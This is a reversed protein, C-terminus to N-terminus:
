MPLQASGPTTLYHGPGAEGLPGCDPGATQSSWRCEGCKGARNAWQLMEVYEGYTYAEIETLLVVSLLPSFLSKVVTRLGAPHCFPAFDVRDSWSCASNKSNAIVAHELIDPRSSLHQRKMIRAIARRIGQQMLCQFTSLIEPSTTVGSVAWTLRIHACNLWV